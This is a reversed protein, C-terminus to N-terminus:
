NHSQVNDVEEADDDIRIKLGLFLACVIVADRIMVKFERDLMAKLFPKGMMKLRILNLVKRLDKCPFM